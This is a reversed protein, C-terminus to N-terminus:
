RSQHLQIGSIGPREGPGAIVGPQEGPCTGVSTSAPTPVGRVQVRDRGREIRDPLRQALDDHRVRM